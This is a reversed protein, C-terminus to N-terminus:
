NREIFGNAKEIWAPIMDEFEFGPQRFGRNNNGGIIESPIHSLDFAETPESIVHGNEMFAWAPRALGFHYTFGADLASYKAPQDWDINGPTM